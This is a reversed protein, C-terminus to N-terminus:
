EGRLEFLGGPCAVINPAIPNVAWPGNCAVSVRRGDARVFTSIPGAEISWTPPCTPFPQTTATSGFQWTRVGEDESQLALGHEDPFYLLLQIRRGLRHGSSVDEGVYVQSSDRRRVEVRGDGIVAIQKAGASLALLEARTEFAVSAVHKLSPLEHLVVERGRERVHARITGCPSYAVCDWHVLHHRYADSRAIPVREGTSTRWLDLGRHACVLLETGVHYWPFAPGGELYSGIRIELTAIHAGSRGDLLETGNVLRAGDPSFAPPLGEPRRAQANKQLDWIQAVGDVIACVHRGSPSWALTTARLELTRRRDGLIIVVDSYTSVLLAKSDARDHVESVPSSFEYELQVKLSKADLVHLLGIYDEYWGYVYIKRGDTSLRAHASGIEPWALQEPQSTATRRLVTGREIRPYGESAVPTTTETDLRGDTWSWVHRRAGDHPEFVVCTESRFQVSGRWYRPFELEGDGHVVAEPGALTGIPRLARLWPGSADLEAHWRQRASDLASLELTCAYFDAVVVEPHRIWTALRARAIARIHAELEGLPHSHEALLEDLARHIADSGSRAAQELAILGFAM